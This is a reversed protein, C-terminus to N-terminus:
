AFLREINLTLIGTAKLKKLQRVVENVENEGVVTQIARMKDNHLPLVTPSSIGPLIACAKEINEVPINAMLYKKSNACIVSEISDIVHNIDDYKESYIENSTFIAAESTLINDLIELDNKVLTTGSSTIDVIVDALGMKPSIEVAGHIDSVEVEVNKSAFYRKTINVFSTAVAIPGKINDVSAYKGKPAAVVVTCKGYGLGKLKKLAFGHEAEIDEGTIGVDVIGKNIYVPIDDTRTFIIEMDFNEVSAFLQRDKVDFAFGADKLLSIAKEQLRGKNPLAMKIM